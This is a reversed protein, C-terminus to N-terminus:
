VAAGAFRLRTLLSVSSLSSSKTKGVLFAFGDVVLALVAALSGALAAEVAAVEVAGAMGVAVAEEAGVWLLRQGTGPQVIRNFRPSLARRVSTLVWRRM